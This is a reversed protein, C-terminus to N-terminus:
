ALADSSTIVPSPPHLPSGDAHLVLIDICHASDCLSPWLRDRVEGDPDGCLDRRDRTFNGPGHDGPGYTHLGVLKALPQDVLIGQGSRVSTGPPEGGDM